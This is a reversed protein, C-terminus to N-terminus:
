VFLLPKMKTPQGEIYLLFVIKLFENYALKIHSIESKTCNDIIKYLLGLGILM